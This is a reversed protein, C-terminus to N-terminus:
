KWGYTTSPQDKPNFKVPPIVFVVSLDDFNGAIPLAELEYYYDGEKLPYVYTVEAVLLGAPFVGDMGTTVLTDGAQVIPMPLEKSDSSVPTGTRLDRAPGEGDAFDYNFGVGRLQHRQSRWLPKSSGYLEGKALFHTKKDHSLHAAASELQSILEQQHEAPFISTPTKKLLQMLTNIKEDLVLSLVGERAARISPTLGSDTILKVRSQHKGVYDIVGVVSTGLLVPSNKAITHSNLEENTASGVNIWFSSNWSDPSRFIVKAPVADLNMQLLKKLEQRHRAKLNKTSFEAEEVELLSNMQSILRLEQQMIDKLQVIEQRLLTNELLLKETEEFSGAMQSKENPEKSSFFHSAAFLHNWAPTLLAVTTGQLKETAEKPISLLSLMSFFLFFYAKPTKRRM